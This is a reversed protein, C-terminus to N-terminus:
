STRRPHLQWLSGSYPPGFLCNGAERFRSNTKQPDARPRAGARRPRSIPAAGGTRRAEGPVRARKVACRYAEGWRSVKKVDRASKKISEQPGRGYGQHRCQALHKLSLLRGIRKCALPERPLRSGHGGEPVEDEACRFVRVVWLHEVLEREHGEQGPDAQPRVAEGGRAIARVLGEPGDLTVGVEGDVKGEHRGDRHPHDGEGVAEEDLVERAAAAAVEHGGPEEARLGAHDGARREHHIVHEGDGNGDSRAHVGDEAEERDIPLRVLDRRVEQNEGEQQDQVQSADLLGDFDEHGDEEHEYGGVKEQDGVADEGVRPGHRLHEGVGVGLHHMVGRAEPQTTSRRIKM